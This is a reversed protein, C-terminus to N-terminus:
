WPLALLGDPLPVRLLTGFVSHIAVTMVAALPAAYVLRGRLLLATALIVSFGAILFGLPEVALVYLVLIVPPLLLRAATVVPPHRPPLDDGVPEEDPVAGASLLILVACLCLAAGVVIPFVAPGVPQGPIRPLQMSAAMCAIGLGSLALGGIRDANLM